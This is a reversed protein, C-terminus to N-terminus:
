VSHKVEEWSIFEEKRGEKWAKDAAEIDAAMRPNALIEKTAEWREKEELFEMFSIAVKIKDEPLSNIIQKAQAKLSSKLTKV